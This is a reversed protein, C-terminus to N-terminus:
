ERAGGTALLPLAMGTAAAGEPGRLLILYVAAALAIILILLGFGWALARGWRRRPAAADRARAADGHLARRGPPTRDTEDRALQGREELLYANVMAEADIGIFECYARVFGRNFVGGPLNQFENRELAELHRLSVKTSESIERLSIERLERERRLEDGFNSM